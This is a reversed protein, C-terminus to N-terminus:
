LANQVGKNEFTAGITRFYVDLFRRTIANLMKFINRALHITDLGKGLETKIERLLITIRAADDILRNEEGETLIVEEAKELTKIKTWMAELFVRIKAPEYVKRGILWSVPMMEMGLAVIRSNSLERKVNRVFKRAKDGSVVRTNHHHDNDKLPAVRMDWYIADAVLQNAFPFHPHEFHPGFLYFHGSGMKTRVAAARGILTAEAIAEDVLFQTKHTFGEYCALVDASDSAIMPPGGYLPALLSGMSNFPPAGDTIIKVEERVPHFVFSCGYTTCFKEPVRKAEPLIRTLNAIKVDVFNFLNLHEKSSNLPLYAGACSGIYVGGGRVFAELKRSGGIGLGEAVAFTDGGSMALIDLDKLGNQLIQNEDLFAVDYFGMRDFLEVFWLWSHSTGSGVYVGIKPYRLVRTGRGQAASVPCAPDQARWCVAEGRALRKNLNKYSRHIESPARMQRNM